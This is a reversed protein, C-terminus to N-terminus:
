LGSRETPKRLLETLRSFNDNGYGDNIAQKAVAMVASLVSVDIGHQQPPSLTLNTM